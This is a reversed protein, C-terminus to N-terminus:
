NNVYDIASKLKRWIDNVRARETNGVGVITHVGRGYSYKISSTGNWSLYTIIRKESLDYMMRKIEAIPLDDKATTM